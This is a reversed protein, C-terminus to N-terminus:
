GIAISATADPLTFRFPITVLMKGNSSICVAISWLMWSLALMTFATTFIVLSQDAKKASGAIGQKGVPKNQWFVVRTKHLDALVRSQRFLRFDDGDASMQRRRRCRRPFKVDFQTRPVCHRTRSKAYFKTSSSRLRAGGAASAALRLLPLPRLICAGDLARRMIRAGCGPCVCPSVAANPLQRARSNGRTCRAAPTEGAARGKTKRLPGGGGVLAAPGWRAVKNYYIYITSTQLTLNQTM